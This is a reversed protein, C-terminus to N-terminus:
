LERAQRILELGDIGPMRIDTILVDPQKAEILSLATLGDYATGILTLGLEEWEVLACILACVRKEDDAVIVNM